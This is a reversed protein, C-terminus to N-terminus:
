GFLVDILAVHFSLLLSLGNRFISTTKVKLLNNDKKKKRCLCQYICVHLTESLSLFEANGVIYVVHSSIYYTGQSATCSTDRWLTGIVASGSCRCGIGLSKICYCFPFFNTIWAEGQVSCGFSILYIFLFMGRPWPSFHFDPWWLVLIFHLQSMKVVWAFKMSNRAWKKRGRFSNM